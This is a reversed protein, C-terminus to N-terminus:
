TRTIAPFDTDTLYLMIALALGMRSYAAAHIVGRRIRSSSQVPRRGRGNRRISLAPTKGGRRREYAGGTRLCKRAEADEFTRRKPSIAPPADTRGRRWERVPRSGRSPDHATAVIALHSRPSPSAVDIMSCNHSYAPIGPRNSHGSPTTLRKVPNLAPLRADKDDLIAFRPVADTLCLRNADITMGSLACRQDPVWEDFPVIPGPERSAHRMAQGPHCPTSLSLFNAAMDPATAHM